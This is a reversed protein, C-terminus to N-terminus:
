NGLAITSNIKAESNWILDKVFPRLCYIYHLNSIIWISFGLFLPDGLSKWSQGGCVISQM